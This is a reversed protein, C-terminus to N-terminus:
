QMFTRLLKHILDIKVQVDMVHRRIEQIFNITVQVDMVERGIFFNSSSATQSSFWWILM